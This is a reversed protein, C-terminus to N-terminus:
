IARVEEFGGGNKPKYFIPLTKDLPGDSMGMKRQSRELKGGDGPLAARFGFRRSRGSQVRRGRGFRQNRGQRFAVAVGGGALRAGFQFALQGRNPFISEVDARNANVVIKKTQAAM